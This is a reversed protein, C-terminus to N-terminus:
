PEGQTISYCPYLVSHTVSGERAVSGLWVEFVTIKIEPTLRRPGLEPALLTDAWVM